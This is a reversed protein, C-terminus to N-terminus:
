LPSSIDSLSVLIRNKHVTSYKVQYTFNHAIYFGELLQIRWWGKKWTLRWSAWCTLISFSELSLVTQLWNDETNVDHLIHIDEEKMTCPIRLIKRCCILEVAWAEKKPKQTLTWSECWLNCILFFISKFWCYNCGLHGYLFYSDKHRFKGSRNTLLLVPPPPM